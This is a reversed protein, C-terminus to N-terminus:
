DPTTPPESSFYPTADQVLITHCVDCVKAPRLKPGSNVTKNLCDVCFVRGCHRCHHKKKTVSFNRRCSTCDDIDEEHQWRVEHEASRIKELQIQLSQSLKVFDRQVAESNDLDIQLCGVKTKLMAVQEELQTRANAMEELQGQLANILQKSKAQVAKLNTDTETFKKEAEIRLQSQREMESRASSLVALQEQLNSIDNNLTEEIRAREQQEALVQDKLFMKESKLTDEMHERAVKATIVEERYQLLLLHLEDVGTPMNISEEQMQQSHASYKGMLADNEEQLKTLEHQIHQRGTTLTQLQEQLESQIQIFQQVLSKVYKDAEEVKRNLTSIEQEAEAATKELNQELSQTYTGANTAAQRQGELQRELMRMQGEARRVEAQATALRTEYDCCMDCPRGLKERSAKLEESLAKWEKDSVNRRGSAPIGRPTPSTATALLQRSAEREPTPDTLSRQQESTLSHSLRDPSLRLLAGDVDSLSRTDGHNSDMDLQSTSILGSSSSRPMPSGRENHISDDFQLLDESLNSLLSTKSGVTARSTDILSDDGAEAARRQSIEEELKKEQAERAATEQKLDSLLKHQDATMLSEMNRVEMMMMRQSELFQDNAMQWTQKLCSHDRREIELLQCVDKLQNNLKDSDEQLVTKQTNLVAVYMELDTRSAKETELNTKLERVKEDIDVTESATSLRDVETGTYTRLKTDLQEVSDKSDRLKSKLQNIEEELPMVVSKLLDADEQAKKMSDELNEQGSGGLGLPGGAIKKQLTKQLTSLVGEREETLKHKAENLEEQWREQEGALKNASDRQSQSIAERMIHQLSAIEEQCKRRVFEIEDQKTCESIATATKLDDLEVKLLTLEATLKKNEELADTLTQDKSGQEVEKQRYMEMFVARKQSFESETNSRERLLESERKQLEEVKERLAQAEDSVQSAETAGTLPGFEESEM